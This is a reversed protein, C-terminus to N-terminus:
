IIITDFKNIKGVVVQDEVELCEEVLDESAM